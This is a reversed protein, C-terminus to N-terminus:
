NVVNKIECRCNPRQKLALTVFILIINNFKTQPANIITAITETSFYPPAKHILTKLPIWSSLRLFDNNVENFVEKNGVKTVLM